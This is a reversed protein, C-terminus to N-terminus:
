VFVTAATGTARAAWACALGANGGSAIVIGAEPMSGHEVHFAALNAAGRAKFSGTHQNFEYVLSVRAAGFAEPDAQAIPVRRVRGAIRGAAAEVEALGLRVDAPSGASAQMRAGAPSNPDHDAMDDNVCGIRAPARERKRFTCSTERDPDPRRGRPRRCGTAPPAPVRSVIGEEGVM